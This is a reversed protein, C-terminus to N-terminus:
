SKRLLGSIGCEINIKPRWGMPPPAANIPKMVERRRYPREGFTINLPRGSIDKIIQALERLTLNRESSAAYREHCGSAQSQLLKACQIYAEVVDNVHVLNIEQEGPSMGLARGSLAADILLNLIKPRPDNPGYTDFLKLTIVRMGFADAYFDLINELAEKTAAYLCVPDYAESRFHQWSTGTNIFNGINSSVCAEALQTGFEVNSIILESVHNSQHEAIFLSALHFVIDPKTAALCSILNQTTGDHQIITVRNAWSSPCRRGNHRQIVVVEWGDDLLRQCLHSGIYGTAGSILAKRFKPM